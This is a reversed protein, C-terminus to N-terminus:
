RLASEACGMCAPVEHFDFQPQVEGVLEIESPQKVNADRAANMMRVTANYADVSEFRAFKKL